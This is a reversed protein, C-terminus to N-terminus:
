NESMPQRQTAKAKDGLLLALATDNQSLLIWMHSRKLPLQLKM